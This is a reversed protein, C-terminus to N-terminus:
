CRGELCAAAAETEREKQWAEDAEPSIRTRSGVKIIRPAKGAKLLNYFTARCVKRKHCWQDITYDQKEV